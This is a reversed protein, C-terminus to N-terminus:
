IVKIGGQPRISLIYCSGIGFIDEMAAKYSGLVDNPVFAQITGAFGGGHVRYAGKGELISQSVALGISVGQEFASSSSFVNQLFKFSSDGSEIILRKFEEFNNDKLAVVQKVVRENDGLFHIARLVARDNGLKRLAPINKFFDEPCVDRLVDKGFFNAITKMETPVAAYDPTLDAHNGKTDVICLNYGSHAFDFPIKEVIPKTPNNFDITIFGGVSSATQDMLGSPKGFYVNEAYQGIQAVEVASVKADNYLHNLITGVLVEFAASSSLGSGKLVNSTTYATFGGIEYGLMKFRAAVGRILSSAKNIESEVIDLNSLDIIDVPYGQSKITIVNDQTKTTISIVDLNVAAALVRGHQHDTHNGGIESRGPASFVSVDANAPDLSSFETEFANVADVYRNTVENISDENVAYLPMLIEHYEGSTLNKKLISPNM